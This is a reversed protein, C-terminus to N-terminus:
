SRFSFDEGVVDRVTVLSTVKRVYEEKQLETALARISSLTRHSFLDDSSYVILAEHDSVFSKVAREQAAKAPDAPDIYLHVENDARVKRLFVGNFLMVGVLFAGILLPSRLM